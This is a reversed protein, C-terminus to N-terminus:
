ATGVWARSLALGAACAALGVILSAVVNITAAWVRGASFAQVTEYSFTSFTTLAGLFGVTLATQLAKPIGPHSQAWGMFLGLLLCGLVNAAFTGYPFADGLLRRALETIGWRSLAGLAGAVAVFIVERM